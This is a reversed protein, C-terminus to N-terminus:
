ESLNAAQNHFFQQGTATSGTPLVYRVSVMMAFWDGIDFKGVGYVDLGLSVWGLGLCGWM